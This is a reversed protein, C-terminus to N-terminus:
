KLSADAFFGHYIRIDIHGERDLKFKQEAHSYEGKIVVEYICSPMNSMAM